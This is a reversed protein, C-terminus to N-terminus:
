EGTIRSLFTTYTHSLVAMSYILRINYRIIIKSENKKIMKKIYINKKLIKIM